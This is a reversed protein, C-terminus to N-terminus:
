PMHHPPCRNHISLLTSPAGIVKCPSVCATNAASLLVSLTPSLLVVNWICINTKRKIFHKFKISNHLTPNLSPLNTRVKFQILTLLNDFYSGTIETILFISNFSQVACNTNMM